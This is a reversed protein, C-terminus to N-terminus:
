FVKINTTSPVPRRANEEFIRKLGEEVRQIGARSPPSGYGLKQAIQITTMAKELMKRIREDKENM